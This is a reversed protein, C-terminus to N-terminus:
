RCSNFERASGRGFWAPLSRLIEEVHEPIREDAAIEIQRTVSM